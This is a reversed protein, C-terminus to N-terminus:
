NADELSTLIEEFSAPRQEADYETCRKILDNLRHSIAFGGKDPDSQSLAKPEKGTFLYNLCCGFSYIDSQLTAKGRLQEPAIYAQKGVLTGTIGEAFQHASGFDILAITGEPTLVINDPTLDRHIIAPKNNHLTLMLKAIDKAIQYLSDESLTEGENVLHFLDKGVKYELLLFQSNDVRFTKYVKSIGSVDLSELLKCEREFDSVLKELSESQVALSFQKLVALQGAATRVLYVASLPKSSLMRVIRLTNDVIEGQNYPTFVTANFKRQSLRTPKEEEKASAQLRAQLNSRYLLVAPEIQCNPACEDITELLIQMESPDVQQPAFKYIKGDGFRLVVTGTASSDVKGKISVSKLDQWLHIPKTFPLSAQFRKRFLGWPRVQLQGSKTPPLFATTMIALPAAGILAVFSALFERLKPTSSVDITSFVSSKENVSQLSEQLFQTLTQGLAGPCHALLTFLFGYCIVLWLATQFSHKIAPNAAKITLDLNTCNVSQSASQLAGKAYKKYNRNELELALNMAIFTIPKSFAYYLLLAVSIKFPAGAQNYDCVLDINADRVSACLWNIVLDAIGFTTFPIGAVFVCILGGMLLVLSYTLNLRASTSFRHVFQKYALFTTGAGATLIALKEWLFHTNILPRDRPIWDLAYPLTSVTYGLLTSAFYAIAAKILTEWNFIIRCLRSGQRVFAEPQKYAFWCAASLAAILSSTVIWSPIHLAITVLSTALVWRWLEYKDKSLEDLLRAFRAQLCTETQDSLPIDSVGSKFFSTDLSATEVLPETRGQQAEAPVNTKLSQQDEFEVLAPAESSLKIQASRRRFAQLKM